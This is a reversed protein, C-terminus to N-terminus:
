RSKNRSKDARETREAEAAIQKAVDEPLPPPAPAPAPEIDDADPVAPNLLAARQAAKLDEPTNPGTAPTPAVRPQPAIVPPAQVAQVPTAPPVAKPPVPVSEEAPPTGGSRSEMLRALMRGQDAIMAQLKAIESDERKPDGLALEASTPLNQVKTIIRGEYLVSEGAEIIAEMEPRTLPTQRHLPNAYENAQSM